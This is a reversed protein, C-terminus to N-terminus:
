LPKALRLSASLLGQYWAIFSREAIRQGGAVGDLGGVFLTSDTSLLSQGMRGPLAFLPFLERLALVGPDLCTTEAACFLQVTTGQLHLDRLTGLLRPAVPNAIFVNAWRPRERALEDLVPELGVYPTPVNARTLEAPPSTPVGAAPAAGQALTCTPSHLAALVLAFPLLRTRLSYIALRGRVSLHNRM